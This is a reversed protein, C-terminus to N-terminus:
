IEKGRVEPPDQTEVNGDENVDKAIEKSINATKVKTSKVNLLVMM